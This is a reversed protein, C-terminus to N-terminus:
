QRKSSKSCTRDLSQNGGSTRGVRGDTGSAPPSAVMEKADKMQQIVDVAQLIEESTPLVTFDLLEYLGPCFPNWFAAGYM